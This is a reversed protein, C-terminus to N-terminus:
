FCFQSALNEQPERSPGPGNGILKEVNNSIIKISRHYGRYVFNHLHNILLLIAHPPHDTLRDKDPNQQLVVVPQQQKTKIAIKWPQVSSVIPKRKVKGAAIPSLIKWDARWHSPQRQSRNSIELHHERMEHLSTNKKQKPKPGLKNTSRRIKNLTRPM